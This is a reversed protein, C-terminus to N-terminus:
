VNINVDIQMINSSSFCPVFTVYGYAWDYSNCSLGCAFQYGTLLIQQLLLEVDYVVYVQRVTNLHRQCANIVSDIGDPRVIGDEGLGFCVHLVGQVAAIVGVNVDVNNVAEEVGVVDVVCSCMDVEAVVEADLEVFDVAKRVEWDRADRKEGVVDFISHNDAM